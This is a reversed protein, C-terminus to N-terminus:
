LEGGLAARLAPPIKVPKGDRLVVVTMTGEIALEGGADFVQYDYRISTRGLKGVTLLLRFPADLAIIRRFRCELHVRPFDYDGRGADFAWGLGRMLEGEAEEVIEFIRPFHLRGAADADAWRLRRKFEIFPATM